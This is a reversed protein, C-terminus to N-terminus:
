ISKKTRRRARHHHGGDASQFCGGQSATIATQSTACCLLRVRCVGGVAAGVKKTFLELMVVALAYIDTEPTLPDGGLVEPATWPGNAAPPSMRIIEGRANRQVLPLIM